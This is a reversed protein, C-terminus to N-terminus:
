RTTSWRSWITRRRDILAAHYLPRAPEPVWVPEGGMELVLAEAVPRMEDTATVGFTAGALRDVDEPRGAFTM